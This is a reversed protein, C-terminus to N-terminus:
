HTLRVQITAHVVLSPTNEKFQAARQRRERGPRASSPQAARVRRASGVARQAAELSARRLAKAEAGLPAAAAPQQARRRERAARQARAAATCPPSCAHSAQRAARPREPGGATSSSACFSASPPLRTSRCALHTPARRPVLLPALAALRPSHSTRTGYSEYTTSNCPSPRWFAARQRRLAGNAGCGHAQAHTGGIHTCKAARADGAGSTPRFSLTNRCYSRRSADM